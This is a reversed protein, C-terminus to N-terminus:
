RTISTTSAKDSVSTERPAQRAPRISLKNDKAFDMLFQYANPELERLKPDVIVGVTGETNVPRVLPSYEVRRDTGFCSMTSCLREAWDSPRFPKGDLKVGLIVFGDAAISM